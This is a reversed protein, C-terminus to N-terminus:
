FILRLIKPLFFFMLLPLVVGFFVMWGKLIHKSKKESNWREEFDTYKGKYRLYNLIMLVIVVGVSAIPIPISQFVALTKFESFSIVPFFAIIGVDILLFVQALSVIGIGRMAFSGDTKHFRKAIRYFMYDFVKM